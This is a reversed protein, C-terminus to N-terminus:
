GPARGDSRRPRSRAFGRDSAIFAALMAPILDGVPRAAGYADAYVAAYAHLAEDLEPPIQIVHRVLARDPIRPLKLM